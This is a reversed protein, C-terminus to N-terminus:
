IRRFSKELHETRPGCYLLDEPDPDPGHDKTGDAHYQSCFVRLLWGFGVRERTSGAECVVMLALEDVWHERNRKEEALHIVTCM